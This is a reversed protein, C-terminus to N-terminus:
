GGGITVHSVGAAKLADRAEIGTRYSPTNTPIILVRRNGVEKAFAPLDDKALKFGQSRLQGDPTVTVTVPGAGRSMTCGGLALGLTGLMLLRKMM